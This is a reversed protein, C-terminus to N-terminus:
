AIVDNQLWKPICMVHWLIWETFCSTMGFLPVVASTCLMDSYQSLIVSGPWPWCEGFIQAFNPRATKSIMHSPCVSLCVSLCAYEQCYKAVSSGQLPYDSHEPKWAVTILSWRRNDPFKMAGDCDTMRRGNYVEDYWTIKNCDYAKGTCVDFSEVIPYIDIFNWGIKSLIEFGLKLFYIKRSICEFMIM